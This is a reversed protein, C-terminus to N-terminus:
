GNTEQTDVLLIIDFSNPAFTFIESGISTQSGTSGLKNNSTSKSNKKSFAKTFQSQVPLKVVINENNDVDMTIAQLSPANIKNNSTTKTRARPIGKKKPSIVQSQKSTTEANDIEIPNTNNQSNCLIDHTFLDNIERSNYIHEGIRKGNDTLSYKLPAIEQVLSKDILARMAFWANTNSLSDSMSFSRSCYKQGEICIEEKAIGTKNPLKIFQEYLTLLIAYMGSGIPIFPLSEIINNNKNYAALKDDLMKCLKKGFGKLILCDKGTELPLPFRKLAEVAIKLSREKPSNAKRADEKWKTVWALFLSNPNKLRLSIRVEEVETM